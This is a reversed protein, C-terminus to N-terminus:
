RRFLTTRSIQVSRETPVPPPRGGGTVRHTAGRPTGRDRDLRLLEPDWGSGTIALQNDALVYARKQAESWGAAVMVPIEAIGLQRAALVRAHGAILGGDEGVLATWGVGQHERSDRRGAGHMKPM